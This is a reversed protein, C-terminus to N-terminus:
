RVYRSSAGAGYKADFFQRFEPTPNSKLKAVADAPPTVLQGPNSPPPTNPSFGGYSPASQGRGAALAASIADAKKQDGAQIANSLMLRLSSETPQSGAVPRNAQIRRTQSDFPVAKAQAGRLSTGAQLYGINAKAQPAVWEGRQTDYYAQANSANASGLNQQEQSPALMQQRGETLGTNRLSALNGLVSNAQEPTMYVNDLGSYDVANPQYSMMQPMQTSTANAQLAQGSPESFAPLEGGDILSYDMPALQPENQSLGKLASNDPKEFAAGMASNGRGYEAANQQTAGYLPAIGKLNINGQSMQALPNLIDKYQTTLDDMQDQAASYIASKRQNNRDFAMVPNAFAGIPGGTLLGALGYLASAAIPHNQTFGQGAAQNANQLIQQQGQNYQNFAQVPIATNPM